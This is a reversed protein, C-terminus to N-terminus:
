FVEFIILATSLPSAAGMFEVTWIVNNYELVIFFSRM